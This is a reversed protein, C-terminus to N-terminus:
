VTEPTFQFNQQDIVLTQAQRDNDAIPKARIAVVAEALEGTKPQKIYYRGYRWLRAPDAQYTVVGEVSGTQAAAPVGGVATFLLFVGLLLSRQRLESAVSLLSIM